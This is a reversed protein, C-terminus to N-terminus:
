QEQVDLRFYRLQRQPSPETQGISPAVTTTGEVISPLNSTAQRFIQRGTHLAASIRHGVANSIQAPDADKGSPIILPRYSENLAAIQIGDPSVIAQSGPEITQTEQRKRHTVVVRMSFAQVVTTDTLPDYSVRLHPHSFKVDAMCNPTDVTFASGPKQHGIAVDAQMVGALLMMRSKRSGSPTATLESIILQSNEELEILTTDTFTLAASSQKKTEVKDGLQLKTGILAEQPPRNQIFSLVNGQKGTVKAEPQEIAFLPTSMTSFYLCLAIGFWKARQQQKM